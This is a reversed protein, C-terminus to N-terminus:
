DQLLALIAQREGTNSLYTKEWSGDHKASWLNGTQELKENLIACIMAMAARQGQEVHKLRLLMAGLGECADRGDSGAPYQEAWALCTAQLTGMGCLTADIRNAM